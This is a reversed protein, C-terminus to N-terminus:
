GFSPLWRKLGDPELNTRLIVSSSGQGLLNLENRLQTRYGNLQHSLSLADNYQQTAPKALTMADKLDWIESNVLALAISREAVESYKISAGSAATDIDSTLDQHLLEDQSRVEGSRVLRLQTVTLLDILDGLGPMFKRPKDRSAMEDMEIAAGREDM